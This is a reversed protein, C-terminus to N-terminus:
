LEEFEVAVAIGKFGSVKGDSDREINVGYVHGPYVKTGDKDWYKSLIYHPSKLFDSLMIHDCQPDNDWRKWMRLGIAGQPLNANDYVFYAYTRGKWPVTGALIPLTLPKPRGVSVTLRIEM